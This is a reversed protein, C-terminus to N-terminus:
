VRRPGIKELAEVVTRMEDETVGPLLRVPRKPVMDSPGVLDLRHHWFSWAKPGFYGAEATKIVEILQEKSFFKELNDVEILLGYDMIHALLRKPEKLAENTTEWWIYGAKEKLFELQERSYESM